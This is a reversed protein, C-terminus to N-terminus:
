VEFGTPNLMHCTPAAERLTQFLTSIIDKSTTRLKTEKEKSHKPFKKFDEM